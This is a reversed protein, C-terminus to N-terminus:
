QRGQEDGGWDPYRGLIPLLAAGIITMMAGYFLAGDYSKTAEFQLAYWVPGVAAGLAFFGYLAGYIAAYSKMGFYRAVMFAMFDFEVGLAVGILIVGLMALQYDAVGPLSLEVLGIAPAALMIFAVGPAWFRDILIGGFVRGIAVTLPVLSYLFLAQADTMGDTKLIKVLNPIVGGLALSIPVFAAALIWFRWHIIAEGLTMGVTPKALVSAAADRPRESFMFYALPLSIMLPLAAVAVYGMRWGETKIMMAVIMTALYGGIGTAVLALGLALGRSRVFWSNVGRTWTIPLTGAGFLGLAGWLAYFVGIDSTMLSFAAFTLGFLLVSILAVPRAGYRDALWGVVPGAVLVAATMVLLGGLIQSEKWGFEQNLPGLLVGITYFPLPSLGLGIGVASSLVVPWGQKFESEPKGTGSM